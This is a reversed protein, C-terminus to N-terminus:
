PMSLWDRALRGASHREPVCVSGGVGGATHSSSLAVLLSTHDRGKQNTMPVAVIYSVNVTAHM